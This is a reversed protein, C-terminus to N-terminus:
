VLSYSHPPGRFLSSISTRNQFSLQEPILFANKKCYLISLHPQKVNHILSFSLHCIQCDDNHGIESKYSKEEGCVSPIKQNDTTEDYHHHFISMGIFTMYGTLFLISYIKRKNHNFM